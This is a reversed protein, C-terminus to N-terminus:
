GRPVAQVTTQFKYCDNLTITLSAEYPLLDGGAPTGTLVVDGPFLTFYQSILSVLEFPTRIMLGTSAKQRVQGNIALQIKTDM